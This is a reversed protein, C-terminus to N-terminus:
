IDPVRGSFYRAFAQGLFDHYQPIYSAFVCRDTADEGTEFSGPYTFTFDKIIEAALRVDEFNVVGIIRHSDNNGPANMPRASEERSEFVSTQVCVDLCSKCPSREFSRRLTAVRWM